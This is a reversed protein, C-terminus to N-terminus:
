GISVAFVLLTSFAEYNLFVPFSNKLCCNEHQQFHIIFLLPFVLNFKAPLRLKAKIVNHVLSAIRIPVIYAIGPPQLSVTLLPSYGGLKM